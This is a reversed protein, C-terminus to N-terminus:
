NQGADTKDKADHKNNENPLNFSGQEHFQKKLEPYKRIIAQLREWVEDYFKFTQFGMSVALIMTFFARDEALGDFFEEETMTDPPLTSELYKSCLRQIEKLKQKDSFDVFDMTLDISQLTDHASESM